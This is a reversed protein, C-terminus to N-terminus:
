SPSAKVKAHGSDLAEAIGPLFVQGIERRPRKGSDKPRNVNHSVSDGNRAPLEARRIAVEQPASIGICVRGNYIRTVTIEIDESILIKEGVKRSLVLM